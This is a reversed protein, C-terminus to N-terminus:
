NKDEEEKKLKANEKQKMDMLTNRIEKLNDLRTQTNTIEVEMTDLGCDLCYPQDFSLKGTDDFINEIVGQKIPDKVAGCIYCNMIRKTDKFVEFEM